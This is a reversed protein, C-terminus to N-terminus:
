LAVALLAPIFVGFFIHWSQDLAWAGTGLSPNDLPIPGRATDSDSARAFIDYPRPVGLRLFAAKGPLKRALWFKLGHERRDAMYHTVGSVLLGAIVGVASLELKLVVAAIFLLATQTAVYSLVHLLCQLRGDAGADGKHKAQHDTQIWYDGVHHGAYLALGVAAFTGAAAKTEVYWPLDEEHYRHAHTVPLADATCRAGGSDEAECRMAEAAKEAADARERWWAATQRMRAWQPKISM